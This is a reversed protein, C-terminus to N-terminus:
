MVGKSTPPRRSRRPDMAIAERFALSFAKVAAEFKHHDNRGALVKVHITAELATALSAFFHELDERPADELMTRKLQLEVSAYPRRVLDIAAIALADDMPVIAQGFRRIGARNGLAKKLAQGLALAADEVIHHQLDGKGKLELDILSHTALSNLMHDLFRVGTRVSSRGEGDVNAAVTIRTERTGRELKASRM